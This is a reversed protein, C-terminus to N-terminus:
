NKQAKQNIIKILKKSLYENFETKKLRTEKLHNEKKFRENKKEFVNKSKIKAIKKMRPKENDIKVFFEKKLQKKKKHKEIM